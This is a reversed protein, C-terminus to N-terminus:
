LTENYVYLKAHGVMVKTNLSLLTVYNYILYVCVVKTAPILKERWLFLKESNYCLLCGRATAKYVARCNCLTTLISVLLM